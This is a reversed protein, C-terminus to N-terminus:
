ASTRVRCPDILTSFRPFISFPATYTNHGKLTIEETSISLRSKSAAVTYIGKNATLRSPLIGGSPSQTPIKTNPVLSGNMFSEDMAEDDGRVGKYRLLLGKEIWFGVFNEEKMIIGRSVSQGQGDMKYDITWLVCARLCAYTWRCGSGAQNEKQQQSELYRARVPYVHTGRPRCKCTIHVLFRVVYCKNAYYLLFVM